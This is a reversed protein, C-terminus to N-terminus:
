REVGGKDTLGPYAVISWNGNSLKNADFHFCSICTQLEHDNSEYHKFFKLTYM